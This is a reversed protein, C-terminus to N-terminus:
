TPWRPTHSEMGAICRDHPLGTPECQLVPNGHSRVRTKGVQGAKTAPRKMSRGGFYLVHDHILNGRERADHRGLPSPESVDLRVTREVVHRRSVASQSIGHGLGNRGQIFIQDQESQRPRAKEFSAPSGPKRHGRLNKGVAGVVAVASQYRSVNGPRDDVIHRNHHVAGNLHHNISVHRRYGTLRNRQRASVM